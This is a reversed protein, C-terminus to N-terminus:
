PFQSKRQMLTLLLYGLHPRHRDHLPLLGPYWSGL